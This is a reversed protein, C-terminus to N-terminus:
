PQAPGSLGGGPRPTPGDHPGAFGAHDVQGGFIAKMARELASRVVEEGEEPAAGVWASLLQQYLGYPTSSAYSACRGELWLPLRGTGAGVWAMFRKRSEQVLRTKGLGPEGVIFLVSGAGSTTARMVEDLVALERDRGVLAAAGARRGRGRYGFPRAKPRELYSAVLPKAGPPVVEETQSWEFTGETAARTVPGVLVSGAKAASQLAAAAGVVEGVAGYGHGSASLGVVAPGTEIGVRVSLAGPWPRPWRSRGSLIRAVLGSPGSPTTRM